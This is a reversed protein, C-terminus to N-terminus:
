CRYIPDLEPGRDCKVPEPTGCSSLATLHPYVQHGEELYWSSTDTFQPQSTKSAELTTAITLPTDLYDIIFSMNPIRPEGMAASSTSSATASSVTTPQSFPEFKRLFQRNRRTIRNSGDVKILFADHPLSELIIGSKNWKKPSPGAQDQLYVNDGERLQALKKKSQDLRESKLYHRKLFCNERDAALEAWHRVPTYESQPIIDRLKHGFVIDAPSVKSHPDPSNRHALLAQSFQSTHLSGKPGVNDRILRKAAKVGLEARKNSEAHYASSIRHKIGWTSFFKSTEESTFVTAGDTCVTEAIGFTSFYDRFANVLHKSTDQPLKLVSLWNSYKDVIILYSHGHFEFFDACVVQFPFSPLDPDPQTLTAPNSPANINCSRCNARVSAIDEKYQPWYVSTSARALMTQVGAHAAHLYSLVSSRFAEPIVVRNNLMIIEQVVTLESFVRKYKSLHSKQLAAADRCLVANLLDSYEPCNKCAERLRDWTIVSHGADPASSAIAAVTAQIHGEYLEEVINNTALVSPSSVWTPPGFEEAYKPSVNNTVPPLKPLKPLSNVPSDHRRSMTDPVVHKKGPVHIPTFSYALSKLKFNMLRPNLVESLDQNQGLIALLPKHDVALSLQPHGLVFLRCKKLAWSAAFAEGEVPHYRSVAPSNFKSAVHVTQWGTNCCGPLESACQCFKQTLWCGVASRSWDTALVTKHKPEFKRVGVSCQKIIETKSLEFAQDLETSWAFPLKSSLLTRFPEMHQTAAFAYAVQNVTGFWARIDTLNKPTPFSRITDIFSDTPGLGTMTIKFGLFNVENQAFQFKKPNFVCGASACKELFQCVRYFNSEIDSDWLFKIM